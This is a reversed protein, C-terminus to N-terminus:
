MQKLEIIEELSNIEEKILRCLYTKDSGEHKKLLERLLEIHSPEGLFSPSLQKCYVTLYDMHMESEIRELNAFWLNAFHKCQNVDGLNYFNM